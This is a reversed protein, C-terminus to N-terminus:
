MKPILPPNIRAKGIPANMAPDKVWHDRVLCVMVFACNMALAKIRNMDCSDIKIRPNMQFDAIVKLKIDIESIM